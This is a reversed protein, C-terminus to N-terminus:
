TCRQAPFQDGISFLHHELANISHVNMKQQMSPEGSVTTKLNTASSSVEVIFKWVYM